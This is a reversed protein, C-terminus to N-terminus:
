GHKKTHIALDLKYGSTSQSNLEVPYVTLLISVFEKQLIGMGNGKLSVKEVITFLIMFGSDRHRINALSTM